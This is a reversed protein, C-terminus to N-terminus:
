RHLVTALLYNRTELMMPHVMEGQDALSIIERTTFELVARDLDAFALERLQPQYSYRSIKQPDLKDALFVVKGLQDLRPHATTHWYVAQYLSEDDLDLGDERRLIEAGVPGHLLVPIHQEVVGVPLDLLAAQELLERDSMARAVDHALAGLSAREPDVGHHPALEAAIDRVRYIHDQLGQPLSALRNAIRRTLQEM